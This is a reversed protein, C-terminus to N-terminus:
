NQLSYPLTKIRLKHGAAFLSSSEVSDL